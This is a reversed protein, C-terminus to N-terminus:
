SSPIAAVFNRVSSSMIWFIDKVYSQSMTNISGIIKQKEATQAPRTSRLQDIRERYKM